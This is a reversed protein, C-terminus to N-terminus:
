FCQQQKSGSSTGQSTSQPTKAAQQLDEHEEDPLSTNCLTTPCRSRCGITVVDHSLCYRVKCHVAVMEKVAFKVQKPHM